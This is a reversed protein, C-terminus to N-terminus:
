FFQMFIQQRCQPKEHNYRLNIIRLLYNVKKHSSTMDSKILMFNHWMAVSLCKEFAWNMKKIENRILGNSISNCWQVQRQLSNSSLKTSYNHVFVKTSSSRSLYAFHWTMFIDNELARQLIQMKQLFFYLFISDLM